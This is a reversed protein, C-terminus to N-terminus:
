GAGFCVFGAPETEGAAAALAAAPAAGAALRRHFGTMVRMAVDDAVRGVSAVVTATGAAILATSLGVSEHGPRVDALGLECASLVAVRPAVSLQQLDYGM